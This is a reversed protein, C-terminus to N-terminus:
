LIPSYGRWSIPTPPAAKITELISPPFWQSSVFIVFVSPRTQSIV